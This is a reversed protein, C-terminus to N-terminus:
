KELERFFCKLFMDWKFCKKAFDLNQYDNKHKHYVKEKIPFWISLGTSKKLQEGRFGTHIVTKNYYQEFENLSELFMKKFSEDSIKVLIRDKLLATFDGLDVYDTYDFTQVLHRIKIMDLFNTKILEICLDAIRNLSQILQEIYASSIFSFTVNEGNEEHYFLYDDVFSAGAEQFSNSEKLRKLLKHYPWGQWPEMEQSFWFYDAFQNLQAAVEIMGMLCADFGLIPFHSQCDLFVKKLEILDISNGSIDDWCINKESSVGYKFLRNDKSHVINQIDKKFKFGGGHNWLILIFNEKVSYKGVWQVFNSLVKPDGSDTENFEEIKVLEAPKDTSSKGVEYRITKSEDAKDFELLIRVFDSGGELRLEDIDTLGAHTLDNDGAMYISVIIEKEM